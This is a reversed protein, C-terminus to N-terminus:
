IMVFSYNNWFILLQISLKPHRYRELFFRDIYEFDEIGDKRSYFFLHKSKTVHYDM